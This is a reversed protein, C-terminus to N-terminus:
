LVRLKMVSNMFTRLSGKDQALYIWGMGRGWNKVIWEFLLRGDVGPDESHDRERLNGVLVRYAVRREVM